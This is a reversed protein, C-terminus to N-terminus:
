ASYASKGAARRGDPNIKVGSMGTTSRSMPLMKDTGSGSAQVGYGPIKQVTINTGDPNKTVQPVPAASM